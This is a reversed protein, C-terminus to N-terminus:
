MTLAGLKKAVGLTLVCGLALGGAWPVLGSLLPGLAKETRVFPCRAGMGVEQYSKVERRPWGELVVKMMEDDMEEFEDLSWADCVGIMWKMRQQGLEGGTGPAVKRLETRLQGVRDIAKEVNAPISEEIRQRILAAIRPGRGSTSVMIQLPGRRIQSGFYFDCEPPVDAVNIPVKLARCLTCIHRSLTVDDIATLVM